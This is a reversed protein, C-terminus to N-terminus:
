GLPHYVDPQWVGVDSMRWVLVEYEDSNKIAVEVVLEKYETVPIRFHAATAEDIKVLTVKVGSIFVTQPMDPTPACRLQALMREALTDAEYYGVVMRAATDALAKNATSQSFTIVAFLTLCLVTFVLVISVAGHGPVGLKENRIVMRKPNTSDRVWGAAVKM